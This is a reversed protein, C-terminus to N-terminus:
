CSTPHCVGTRFICLTMWRSDRSSLFDPNPWRLLLGQRCAAVMTFGSTGLDAAATFWAATRMQQHGGCRWVLSLVCRQGFGQWLMGTLACCLCLLAQQVFLWTTSTCLSRSAPNQGARRQSGGGQPVDSYHKFLIVPNGAHFTYVVTQFLLYHM